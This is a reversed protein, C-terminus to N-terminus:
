FPTDTPEEVETYIETRNEFRIFDKLFTLKVSGTPGNRQKAIIIEAMNETPTGDKEFEIGYFEPRYVFMVVDADQEIAGSERLDALQPRKDGGRMEVGRSLQSIGIVPISLEKAIGKLSRSIMAIEQQRNDAGRPGQMMQLYDIIMLQIDEKAKLRRAKSRLELIGINPTDDIFIGAESLPGVADSLKPWDSDPLRGTRMKHANIRAKSCLLRLAIQQKSMELSFMAVSKKSDIAINELINLGLGTKGMSPRGAVVVFDGPHLGATMNDLDNYGTAIGTIGGGSKHYEEIQEFTDPLITGIHIFGDGLRNQSISFISNEASDLLDAAEVTGSRCDETIEHSIEIMRRLLYKDFVINAHHRVNATSAIHDTIEALYARGGIKELKQNQQLKESITILDIPKNDDFLQISAEFIFSHRPDYFVEPQKIIDTVEYIADRFNLIAALVAQEAEISNPNSGQHSRELTM